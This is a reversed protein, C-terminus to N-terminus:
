RSSKEPFLLSGVVSLAFDFTCELVGNCSAAKKSEDARRQAAGAAETAGGRRLEDAARQERDAAESHYSACGTGAVCCLVAMVTIALRKNHWM